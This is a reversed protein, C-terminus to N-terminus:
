SPPVHGLLDLEDRLRPRSDAAGALRLDFRPLIRPCDDPVHRAICELLLDAPVVADPDAISTAVLRDEVAEDPGGRRVSGVVLGVAHEGLTDLIRDLHDEVHDLMSAELLGAPWLVVELRESPRDRLWMLITQVDSLVHRAHPLVAVRADRQELVSCVTEIWADFAVHGPGLWNRPEASWPDDAPAFTGSGVIWRGADPPLFPSQEGSSSWPTMPGLRAWPSDPPPETGPSAFADFREGGHAAASESTGEHQVLITKV